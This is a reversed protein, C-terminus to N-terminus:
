NWRRRKDLFQPTKTSHRKGSQLAQDLTKSKCNMSIISLQRKKLGKEWTYDTLILKSWDSTRYSM